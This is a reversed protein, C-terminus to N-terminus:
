EYLYECNKCLNNNVKNSLLEQRLNQIKKGNWIELISERNLDGYVYMGDVDGCCPVVRGDWLVTLNWWPQTCAAFSKDRKKNKYDENLSIVESSVGSWHTFSKCQVEDIEKFDKWYSQMKNISVQNQNFSIMGLRVYMNFNKEKKIKLFEELRQKSIDYWGDGGGRISKFTQNDHGDLSIHLKDLGSEILKNINDSTLMYPNISLLTNKFGKEKAYKIFLNFDKHVMSEGFHTLSLEKNLSLPNISVLEDLIRKFLSFEMLGQARKMAYTRVCMICQFPCKNTLEINGIHPLTSTTINNYDNKIRQLKRKIRKIM